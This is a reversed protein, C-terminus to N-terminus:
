QCKFGSLEKLTPPEGTGQLINDRTEPKEWSCSLPVRRGVVVILFTELVSLDTGAAFWQELGWSSLSFLIPAISHSSLPSM